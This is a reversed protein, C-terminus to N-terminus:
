LLKEKQPDDDEFLPGKVLKIGCIDDFEAEGTLGDVYKRHFLMEVHNSLERRMRFVEKNIEKSKRTCGCKMCIWRSYSLNDINIAKRDPFRKKYMRYIIITLYYGLWLTPIVELSNIAHSISCFWSSVGLLSEKSITYILIQNDFKDDFLLQIDFQKSFQKLSTREPYLWNM